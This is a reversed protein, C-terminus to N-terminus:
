APVESIDLTGLEETMRELDDTRDTFMAAIFSEGLDNGANDREIAVGGQFLLFSDLSSSPKRM